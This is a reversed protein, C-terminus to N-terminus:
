LVFDEHALAAGALVGSAKLAGCQVRLRGRRTGIGSIGKCLTWFSGCSEGSPELSAEFGKTVTPRRTRIIYSPQLSSRPIILISVTYLDLM